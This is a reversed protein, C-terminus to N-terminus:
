ASPIFVRLPRPLGRRLKKAAAKAAHVENGLSM